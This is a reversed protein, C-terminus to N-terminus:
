WYGGNPKPCLALDGDLADDFNLCAGTDTGEPEAATTTDSAISKAQMPPQQTALPKFFRLIFAALITVAIFCFAALIIAVVLKEFNTMDHWLNSRLDAIIGKKKEPTPSSPRDEAGRVSRRRIPKSRTNVM